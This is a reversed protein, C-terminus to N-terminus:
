RKPTRRTVATLTEVERGDPDRHWTLRMDVAAALADAAEVTAIVSFYSGVLTPTDMALDVSLRAEPAITYTRVLAPHPATRTYVVTVAVEIQEGNQFNLYARERGPQGVSAQALMLREVDQAAAPASAAAVLLALAAVRFTTM